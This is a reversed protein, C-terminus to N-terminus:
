DYEIRKGSGLSTRAQCRTCSTQAAPAETLSLCGRVITTGIASKSNATCVLLVMATQPEASHLPLYCADAVTLRTCRGATIEFAHGSIFAVKMANEVDAGRGALPGSALRSLRNRSSIRVAAEPCFRFSPIELNRLAGFTAM